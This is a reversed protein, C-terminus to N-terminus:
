QHGQDMQRDSFYIDLLGDNDYDFLCVGAGTGEVINDLHHDGYSHKFTIGADKTIDTYVPLDPPESAFLMAALGALRLIKM